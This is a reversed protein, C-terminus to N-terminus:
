ATRPGNRKTARAGLPRISSKEAEWMRESTEKSGQELRDIQARAEALLQDRGALDLELKRCRAELAAKHEEYERLRTGCVMRHKQYRANVQGLSKSLQANSQRTTALRRGLKAAEARAGALHMIPQLTSDNVVELLRALATTVEEVLQDLRDRQSISLDRSGDGSRAREAEIARIDRTAREKIDEYLSAYGLAGGKGLERAASNLLAGKM